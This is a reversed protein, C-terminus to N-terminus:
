GHDRLYPVCTIVICQQPWLTQKTQAESYTLQEKGKLSIKVDQVHVISTVAQTEPRSGRSKKGEDENQFENLRMSELTMCGANAHM